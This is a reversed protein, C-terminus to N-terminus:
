SSFRGGQAIMIYSIVLVLVIFNIVPMLMFQRAEVTSGSNFKRWSVFVGIFCSLPFILISIFLIMTPINEAAAPSDFMMPSMMAMGCGGFGAFLFIITGIWMWFRTM